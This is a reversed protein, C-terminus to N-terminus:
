IVFFRGWYQEFHYNKYRVREKESLYCGTLTYHDFSDDTKEMYAAMEIAGRM